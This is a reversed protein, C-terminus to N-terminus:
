LLKESSSERFFKKVQQEQPAQVKSLGIQKLRKYDGRYIGPQDVRCIDPKDGRFM